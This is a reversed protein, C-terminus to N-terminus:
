CSLHNSYLSCATERKEQDTLWFARSVCIVVRTVSPALRSLCSLLKEERDAARRERTEPSRREVSARTCERVLDSFSLSSATMSCLTRSYSQQKLDDYCGSFM